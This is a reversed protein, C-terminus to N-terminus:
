FSTKSTFFISTKARSQEAHPSACAAAFTRSMKRLVFPMNELLLPSHTHTNCYYLSVELQTDFLAEVAAEKPNKETEIGAEAKEMEFQRLKADVLKLLLSKSRSKSM